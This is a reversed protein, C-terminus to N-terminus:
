LEKCGKPPLKLGLSAAWDQSELIVNGDEAVVILSPSFKDPQISCSFHKGPGNRDSAEVMGIAQFKADPIVDNADINIKIPHSDNVRVRIDGEEVHIRSEALLRSIHVDVDGKKVFINASGDIGHANVDGQEYVAIFSENHLNRLNMSGTNSSFKSEDAYSSAVRIDGSDTTVNLAPGTFRRNSIVNGDETKISIDGQLLGSCEIDGSVSALSIKDSKIGAATITGSKSTLNCFDSEIFNEAEICAYTSESTDVDINHTMPLKIVTAVDKIKEPSEAKTVVKLTDGDQNVTTDCQPSSTAPALVKVICRDMNPHEHHGLSMVKVNSPSRVSLTGGLSPVFVNKEFLIKESSWVGGGREKSSSTITQIHIFNNVACGNRVFSALIRNSCHSLMTADTLSETNNKKRRTFNCLGRFTSVRQYTVHKPKLVKPQIIGDSQLM